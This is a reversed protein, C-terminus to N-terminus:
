MFTLQDVFVEPEKKATAKRGSKSKSTDNVDAHVQCIASFKKPTTRWFAVPSM